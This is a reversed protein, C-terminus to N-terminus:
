YQGRDVAGICYEDGEERRACVGRTGEELRVRDVNVVKVVM